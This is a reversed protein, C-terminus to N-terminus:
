SDIKLITYMAQHKAPAQKNWPFFDKLYFDEHQLYIIKNEYINFSM